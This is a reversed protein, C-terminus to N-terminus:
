EERLKKLDSFLNILEQGQGAYSIGGTVNIASLAKMQEDSPKWINQPQVRDKLSKLWTINNRIDDKGFQNYDPTSKSYELVQMTSTFRVDDGKTWISRQSQVRYKLSKLWDKFETADKNGLMIFSVMQDLFVYLNNVKKEDEESWAPKQDMKMLEKKDADWEYGAEKMKQFLLDRQEKTAPHTMFTPKGIFHYKGERYKDESDYSCYCEIYGEITLGKFIFVENSATSSTYLVDGDKVDEITWLHSLSDFNKVSHSSMINNIDTVTYMASFNGSYINNIYCITKNDYVVWDGVKFKPSYVLEYYGSNDVNDIKIYWGKGHYAGDYIGTITHVVESNKLRITDGVKFKPEVKDVSKEEIRKLRKNEVDWEYGAEKIKQFLLDSQEKTAPHTARSTEWFHKLGKNFDLVNDTTLAVFHRCAHDITDKFLFISGDSAVLVDGDKADKTADWLRACREVDTCNQTTYTDGYKLRYKDDIVAVVQYIDDTGQHLIWDGEHFKPEVKDTPKHEGQKELWDVGEKFGWKFSQEHCYEDHSYEETYRVDCADDITNEWELGTRVQPTTQKELWKEAFWCTGMENEDKAHKTAQKICWLVDEKGQLDEEPTLVKQRELWSIWELREETNPETFRTGNIFSVINKRIKEDESMEFQSFIENAVNSGFRTAIKQRVEDYAEAKQKISLEKM